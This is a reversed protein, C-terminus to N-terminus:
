RQQFLRYPSTNDTKEANLLAKKLHPGWRYNGTEGSSLVVRHCPILVAIPNAAVASGVARSAKPKGVSAAIEKYSATSGAPVNLLARWVSKQFNTGQPSLSDWQKDCSLDQFHKLWNIFATRFSDDASTAPEKQDEFAIISIRNSQVTVRLLGWRTKLLHNADSLHTFCM